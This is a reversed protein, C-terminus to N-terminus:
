CSSLHPTPLPPAVEIGLTICVWSCHSHECDDRGTGGVHMEKLTTYSLGAEFSCLCHPHMPECVMPNFLQSRILHSDLWAEQSLTGLFEFLAGRSEGWATRQM